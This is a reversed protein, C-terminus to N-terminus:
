YLQVVLWTSSCSHSGSPTLVMKKWEIHLMLDDQDTWWIWVEKLSLRKFLKDGFIMGIKIKEM